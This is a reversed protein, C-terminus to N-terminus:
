ILAALKTRKHVNLRHVIGTALAAGRQNYDGMLEGNSCLQFVGGNVVAAWRMVIIFKQAM